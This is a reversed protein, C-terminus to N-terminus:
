ILRPPGRPQHDHTPDPAVRPTEFTPQPAVAIAVRGLLVPQAPPLAGAVHNGVCIPCRVTASKAPKGADDLAATADGGNLCFEHAAAFAPPSLSALLASSLIVNLVLAYAAAFAAATGIRRKRSFLGM